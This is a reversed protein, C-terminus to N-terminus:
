NIAQVILPLHKVFVVVTCVTFTESSGRKKADKETEPAALM